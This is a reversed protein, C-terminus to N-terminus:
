RDELRGLEVQQQVQRLKVLTRAPYVGSRLTTGPYTVCGPGMLVGPNTVTNCGTRCGDGLVAGFKRLGTRVTQGDHPFTVEVGVNKVNSLITGAGLNVDRGLISDGVYNQHPAHAGDLLIARKLESHAGIVCGAGVVVGGRLYAGTRVESGEGLIIPGRLVAGPEIRCGGGVFVHGGLLHVGAGLDSSATWRDWAALYEDMRSGLATWVPEDAAFLGAHAFSALDLFAKASLDGM